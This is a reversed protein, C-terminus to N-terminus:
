LNADPCRVPIILIQEALMKDEGMGLLYGPKQVDKGWPNKKWPCFGGELTLWHEQNKTSCGVDHYSHSLLGSEPLHSSTHGPLSSWLCLPWRCWKCGLAWTHCPPLPDLSLFSTWSPCIDMSDMISALPRGVGVKM